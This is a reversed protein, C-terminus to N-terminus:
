HLEKRGVFVKKEDEFELPVESITQYNSLLATQSSSSASSFQQSLQQDRKRIIQTVAALVNSALEDKNKFFSVTHNKKLENRLRNINDGTTGSQSTGDSFKLPWPVSEDLLFILCPIGKEKAKRYELETISLNNPNNDKNDNPYIDM